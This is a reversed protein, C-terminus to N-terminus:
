SGPLFALGGVDHGPKDPGGMIMVWVATLDHIAAVPAAMVTSPSNGFVM